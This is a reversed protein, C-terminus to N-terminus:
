LDVLDDARMRRLQNSSQSVAAIWKVCSYM